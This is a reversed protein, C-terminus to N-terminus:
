RTIVLKGKKYTNEGRVLFLYLGSALQRGDANKLDWDKSNTNDNKALTQVLEGSITYVKITAQLTLASFTVRRCGASLSCPNPFAHASSVDGRPPPTSNVTGWNVSYRGGTVSGFGLQGTSGLLSYGAGVKPVSNGVAVQESILISYLGSSMLADAATFSLFALAAFIAPVAFKQWNGM